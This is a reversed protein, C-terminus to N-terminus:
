PPGRPLRPMSRMVVLLGQGCSPCPPGARLPPGWAETAQPTPAPASPPPDAAYGALCLQLQHLLPRHGPSGLGDYRVHHCGQPLVHPVVRRIFAHAPLTMTHWRQHQADQDRFGGPGDAISLRRHHTLASRHGSRGLYKLGQERGQTTPKCSVVWGHTWVVEPLPLDPREQRVLELVLGRFRKARAHVPVWSATRAPRWETRDAAVGGAPVLCPV